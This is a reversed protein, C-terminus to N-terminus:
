CNVPTVSFEVLGATVHVVVSPVMELLPSNVAGDTYTCVQAVTVAVLTSSGLFAACEFTVITGGVDAGSAMTVGAKGIVGTPDAKEKARVAVPPNVGYVHVRSEPGSGAPIVRPELPIREPVDVCIPVNGRVIFTVSAPL